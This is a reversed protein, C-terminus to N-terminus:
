QTALTASSTPTNRSEHRATASASASESAEECASLSIRPPEASWEPPGDTTGSAPAAAGDAAEAGEAAEASIPFGHQPPAAGSSGREELSHLWPSSDPADPPDPNQPPSASGSRRAEDEAGLIPQPYHPEPDSPSPAGEDAQSAASLELGPISLRGRSLRSASFSIGAKSGQNSGAGVSARSASVSPPALGRDALGQLVGGAALQAQQEQSLLQLTERTLPQPAGAGDCDASRNTRLARFQISQLIDHDEEDDEGGLDSTLESAPGTYSKHDSVCYDQGESTASFAASGVAGSGAPLFSLRQLANHQNIQHHTLGSGTPQTLMLPWAAAAAAEIIHHKRSSGPTSGAAALSRGASAAGQAAGRPESADDDAEEAPGGPANRQPAYARRPQRAGSAEGASRAFSNSGTRQLVPTRIDDEPRAQVGRHAVGNEGGTASHRAATGEQPPPAGASQAVAANGAGGTGQARQPPAAPAPPAERQTGDATGLSAISSRRLATQGIGGGPHPAPRGRRPKMIGRGSGGEGTARPAAPAAPALAPPGATAAHPPVAPHQLPPDRAASPSPLEPPAVADTLGPDPAARYELWTAKTSKRMTGDEATGFLALPVSAPEHPPAAFFVWQGSRVTCGFLTWDAQGLRLGVRFPAADPDLFQVHLRVQQGQVQASYSGLLRPGAPHPQQRQAQLRLLRVERQLERVQLRLSANDAASMTSEPQSRQSAADQEEDVTEAGATSGCFSSGGGDGGSIVSDKTFSASDLETLRSESPMLTGPHWRVHRPQSDERGGITTDDDDLAAQTKCVAEEVVLEPTAAAGADRAAAAGAVDDGASLRQLKERRRRRREKSFLARQSRARHPSYAFRRGDGTVPVFGIALLGASVRARASKCHHPGHNSLVPHVELEPPGGPYRSRDRYSAVDAEWPRVLEQTLSWLHHARQGRRELLRLMREESFEGWSDERDGATPDSRPSDAKPTATAHQATSGPLVPAAPSGLPPRAGAAARGACLLPPGNATPTRVGTPSQASTRAGPAM